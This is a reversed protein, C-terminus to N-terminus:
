WQRGWVGDEQALMWCEWNVGDKRQLHLEAISEGCFPGRFLRKGSRTLYGESIWGRRFPMLLYRRFGSSTIVKVPHEDSCVELFAHKSTARTLVEQLDSLSLALEIRPGEYCCDLGVESENRGNEVYLRSSKGGLDFVLLDSLHAFSRLAARLQFPDFSLRGAATLGQADRSLGPWDQDLLRTQIVVRSTEFVLSDDAISIDVWGDQRTLLGLAVGGLLFRFEVGSKVAFVAEAYVVGDTAAMRGNEWLVFQTDERGRWLVFDIAGYLDNVTSVPLHLM